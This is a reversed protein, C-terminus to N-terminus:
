ENKLKNWVELVNKCTLVKDHNTGIATSTMWQVMDQLEDDSNIYDSDENSLYEEWMGQVWKDILANKEPCNPIQYLLMQIQESLDPVYDYYSDDGGDFNDLMVELYKGAEELLTKLMKDGPFEPDEFTRVFIQTSMDIELGKLSKLYEEFQKDKEPNEELEFKDFAKVWQEGIFQDPTYEGIETLIYFKKEM